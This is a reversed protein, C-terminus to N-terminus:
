TNTKSRIRDNLIIYRDNITNGIIIKKEIYLKNLENRVEDSNGHIHVIERFLAHTPFINKSKKDEEIQNIIETITKM